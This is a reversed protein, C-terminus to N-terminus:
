NENKNELLNIQKIILNNIMKAGELSPHYGDFFYFNEKDHTKCLNTKENCFAKYSRIKYVNPYNITDFFSNVSSNQNLYDSYTYDFLRVMNEFKKKQLNVGVEPIPYM